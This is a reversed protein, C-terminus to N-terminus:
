RAARIAAIREETHPHTLLYRPVKIDDSGKGDKGGKDSKSSKEGHARELRELMTALPEPSLGNRKLLAVAFADAEREMDRSYALDALTAPLATLLGSAESSLLTIVAGVIASSILRRMFHRQEIHGLEHALVAEVEGSTLRSLLTDYFVVRKAAGIGTFYANAHASRKSGDMVYLGRAAFGCRHMLAQVRQALQEDALPEFRNFLPAIVTPWLVLLLGNFAVWTVWVWLWWSSSAAMLWLVLAALPLGIMAGVAAGKLRDSWWLGPTQRNFGYRQEVRFTSVWDLPLDLLAGILFFAVLLALQVGIPGLTPQWPQLAHNLADLGGLLTWGLLVAHSVLTSWMALRGKAVTYDAAKRHSEASVRGVFATPVATRHAAVHRMQRTLLWLQAALSALVAAAFAFSLDSATM